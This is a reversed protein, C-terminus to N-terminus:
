LNNFLFCALGMDQLPAFLLSVPLQTGTAQVQIFLSMQTITEM